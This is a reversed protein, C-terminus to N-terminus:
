AIGFVQVKGKGSGANKIEGCTARKRTVSGDSSSACARQVSVSLQTGVVCTIPFLAAILSCQVDSQGHYKKGDIPTRAIQWLALTSLRAQRVLQVLSCGVAQWCSLLRRKTGFGANTTEIFPTAAITPVTIRKSQSPILSPTM